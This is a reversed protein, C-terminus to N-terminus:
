KEFLKRKCSLYDFGGVSAKFTVKYTALQSSLLIEKGVSYLANKAGTSPFQNEKTVATFLQFIWLTLHFNRFLLYKVAYLHILNTVWLQAM